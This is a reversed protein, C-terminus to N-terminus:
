KFVCFWFDINFFHFQMQGKLVYNAPVNGNKNVYIEM